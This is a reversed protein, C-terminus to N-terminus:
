YNHQRCPSRVVKVLVKEKGRRPEKETHPHAHTNFQPTSQCERKTYSKEDCRSLTDKSVKKKKMLTKKKKSEKKKKKAKDEKKKKTKNGVM